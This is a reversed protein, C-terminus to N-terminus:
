SVTAMFTQVVPEGLLRVSQEKFGDALGRKVVAKASQAAQDAIQGLTHERGWSPHVDVELILQVRIKGLRNLEM